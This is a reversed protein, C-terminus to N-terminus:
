PILLVKGMTRRGEMARHAEAAESLRYEHGIRIKLEGRKVWEFLEGTRKLLTKRDAIHDWLSPWTLFKSGNVLIWPSIPPVSGGTRSHLVLYGRVGLSRLSQDFTTKGVGDYVVHVGEGGTAKKIEKEFDERTYIIVKDAGAELAVRAKEETSVTTFVYAGRRKAIQILILGMGGAGAHILCRVGKKLPYTTDALYHATLGQLMISAGLKADIGEPLKVVREWPAAVREAYGGLTGWTVAAMDGERFGEVGEGM